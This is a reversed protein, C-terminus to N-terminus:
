PSSGELAPEFPAPSGRSDGANYPVVLPGHLNVQLRANGQFGSVSVKWHELGVLELGMAGLTQRHEPPDSAMDFGAASVVAEVGELPVPKGDPRVKLTVFPKKLAGLYFRVEVFQDPDHVGSAVVLSVAKVYKRFGLPLAGNAGLMNTHVGIEKAEHGEGLRRNQFHCRGVFFDTENSPGTGVGPAVYEQDYLMSDGESGLILARLPPLKFGLRRDRPSGLWEVSFGQQRALEQLVFYADLDRPVLARRADDVAGVMQVIERGGLDNAKLIGDVSKLQELAQALQEYELVVYKPNGM